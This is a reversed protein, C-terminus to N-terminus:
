PLKNLWSALKVTWLCSWDTPTKRCYILKIEEIGLKQDYEVVSNATM